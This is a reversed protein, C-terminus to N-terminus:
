APKPGADLPGASKRNEWHLTTHLKGLALPEPHQLKSEGQHKIEVLHSELTEALNQLWTAWVTQKQAKTAM